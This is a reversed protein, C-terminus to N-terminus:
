PADKRAAAAIRWARSSLHGISGCLLNEIQTLAKRAEDREREAQEQAALATTLQDELCMCELDSIAQLCDSSSDNLDAITRKLEARRAERKEADTGPTSM